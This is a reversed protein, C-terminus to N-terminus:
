AFNENSLSTYYRANLYYIGTSADHIGGTYCIENFFTEDGFSETEGFDNYQYSVIVAGTDDIINTTSERIDKTYLYYEEATGTGRTTGIVAGGSGLLNWSTLNDTGDTTYLVSGNQYFYITTDDAESKRIRQGNGNYQNEQTLEITEGTKKVLRTMNGAVDYTQERVETTKSDTEKIQNGTKDYLYTKESTVTEGTTETSSVLQNLSNYVYETSKDTEGGSETEATRNGVADYSYTYTVPSKSSDDPYSTVTKTLRGNCDYTHTRLENTKESDETPYNNIIRETLINSNKDYTYAYSERVTNLDSSDKITISSVREFSDYGYEKLIYGDEGTLVGRYDTVSKLKGDNNYAYERVLQDNSSETDVLVRTPWKYANYEFKVTTIGNGHGPYAVQTVNDDFDYSYTLKAAAIQSETPVTPGDLEAVAIMRDLEDYDYWTYRLFM